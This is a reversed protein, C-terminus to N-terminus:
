PISKAQIYSKRNSIRVTWVTQYKKYGQLILQKFSEHLEKKWNASNPFL